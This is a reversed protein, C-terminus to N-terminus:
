RELRFFRMPRDTPLRVTHRDDETEITAEVPLWDGGDLQDKYVLRFSDGSTWTLVVQDGALAVSLVPRPAEPLLGLQVRRIQELTLVRNFISIEDMLGRFCRSGSLTPGTATRAAVVTGFNGVTLPGTAPLVGRNYDRTVDLAALTDANGFYFSVQGSPLTGDYTVAFFVWNAPGTNPDATIKGASSVAPSGDPWQNVGLQLAGSALHVLDFGNGNPAVLAFAIRNGGSGITLDRCNVWGCVTFSDLPGLAGPFDVARGGDSAGIIGFDIAGGNGSPAYLGSPANPAFIPFGGQQALTGVAGLTGANTTTLGSGESFSLAALPAPQAPAWLALVIAVSSGWVLGGCRLRGLPWGLPPVLRILSTKMPTIRHIENLTISKRTRGRSGTCASFYDFASGEHM